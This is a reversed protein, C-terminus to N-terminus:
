HFTYQQDKVLRSVRVLLLILIRLVQIDRRVGELRATLIGQLAPIEPGRTCVIRRAITCLELRIARIWRGHESDFSLEIVQARLEPDDTEVDM